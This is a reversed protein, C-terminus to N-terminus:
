TLVRVPQLILWPCVPQPPPSGSACPDSINAFGDVLRRQVIINMRANALQAAAMLQGPENSRGAVTNFAVLAAVASIGIVLIFVILEILTFGSAKNM